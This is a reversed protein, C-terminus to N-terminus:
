AAIALIYDFKKVALAAWRYLVIGSSPARYEKILNGYVDYVEGVTQGQRVKEGAKVLCRWCGSVDSYLYVAAQVDAARHINPVGRLVAQYRLINLIDQKYAAVDEPRCEGLCGREILLSPIGFLAAQNYAGSVADSKVMYGVNLRAAMEKAAAEIERGASGPYYAYPILEEPQDGGHMDIYFDGRRIIENLLFYATREALTGDMKGPFVRNLNKGDSPVVYSAQQWFAQPNSLHVIIIQGCVESPLIEKALSVAAWIAPYECGHIGATLVATRGNQAGNIVTLPLGVLSNPVTAMFQKKEGTQVKEGAVVIEHKM